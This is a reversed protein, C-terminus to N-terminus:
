KSLWYQITRPLNGALLPLTARSEKIVAAKIIALKTTIRAIAGPAISDYSSCLPFLNVWLQVTQYSKTKKELMLRAYRVIPIYNHM